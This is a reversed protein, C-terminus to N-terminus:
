KLPLSDPDCQTQLERKPGRYADFCARHGSLSM